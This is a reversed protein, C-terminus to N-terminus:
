YVTISVTESVEPRLPLKAQFTHTGESLPWRVPKSTDSLRYPKNDVFWLVQFGAPDTSARLALTNLHTPTDPNRRISTAASPSLLTVKVPADETLEGPPVYASANKGAPLDLPSYGAPPRPVGNLSAWVEYRPPLRLFSVTRRYESPTHSGALLGNRSDVDLSVHADDAGPLAGKPFWETVMHGCPKETKKGSRACVRVRLHDEPPPFPLDGTGGALERHLYLLIERAAPAAAEAGGLRNMPRNDARGTWVGVLYEGSWATAWADRFGKSTGTKVAVAFPYETAGMRSFSPLRAMPDSLFLTILRAANRDMVKEAYDRGHPKFWSLERIVGDNALAGYARVMRELSVPLSGLAIGLGYRSAPYRNEHFGLTGLFHYAEGLGMSKVLAAAPINRSNALAQRPLLPGLFRNDANSFGPADSPLDAMPTGPTIVGLELGKAYIFPKVTSGPSRRVRAFDVAGAAPGFYDTSGVWALVERTERRTVIVAMNGAGREMLRDMHRRAIEAAKDQLGRTLHTRVMLPADEELSELQKELKFVAHLANDPRTKLPPVTLESLQAGALTYAEESIVGKIHLASLIERGRKRAHSPGNASYPNMRGPAHPIATLFAIEAWSLDTVPKDLYFRAAHRIGHSNRGYPVIKLYQRLVNDRGYRLTMLIASVAEAAKRFYTRKGPNQMRAVQMAITSAGSIRRRNKLNQWLARAVAVADVGPHRRFRRDELAITAAVVREPLKAVPWYGYGTKKGGGVQALFSGDSFQLMRSPSYSKLAAGSIGQMLIFGLPTAAASVLFLLLIGRLGM